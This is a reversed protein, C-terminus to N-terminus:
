IGHLLLHSWPAVRATARRGFMKPHGQRVGAPPRLFVWGAPSGARWGGPPRPLRPAVRDQARRGALFPRGQGGGEGFTRGGGGEKRERRRSLITGEPLLGEGVGVPSLWFAGRRRRGFSDRTVRDRAAPWCIRATVQRWSPNFGAGSVQSRSRWVGGQKSPRGSWRPRCTGTLPDTQCGGAPGARIPSVYHPANQLLSWNRDEGTVTPRAPHFPASM